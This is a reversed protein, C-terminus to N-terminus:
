SNSRLGRVVSCSSPKGPRHRNKACRQASQGGEVVVTQHPLIQEKDMPVVTVDVLAAPREQARVANKIDPAM